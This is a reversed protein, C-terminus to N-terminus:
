RLKRWSGEAKGGKGEEFHLLSVGLGGLAERVDNFGVEAGDEDVGVEGEGDYGGEEVGVDAPVEFVHGDVVGKGVVVRGGVEGVEEGQGEVAGM